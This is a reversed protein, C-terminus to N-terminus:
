RQTEDFLTADTDNSRLSISRPCNHKYPQECMKYPAVHSLHRQALSIINLSLFIKAVSDRPLIYMRGHAVDHSVCEKLLGVHHRGNNVDTM